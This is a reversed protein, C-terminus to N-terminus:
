KNQRETYDARLFIKYDDMKFGYKDLMKIVLQRVANADKTTKVYVDSNKILQPSRLLAKDKSFNFTDGWQMSDDSAFSEFMKPDLENLYECTKILVERWTFAKQYHKELQFAFPRKFRYDEKLDHPITNDVAYEDYRRLRELNREREKDQVSNDEWEEDTAQEETVQVPQGEIQFRKILDKNSKLADNVEKQVEVIKIVDSYNRDKQLSQAENILDKLLDNLVINVSSVKDELEAAYSEYNEKIFDIHKM